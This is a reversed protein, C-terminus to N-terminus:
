WMAGPLTRPQRVRFLFVPVANCVLNGMDNARPTGARRWALDTFICILESKWRYQFLSSCHRWFRYASGEALPKHEQTVSRCSTM